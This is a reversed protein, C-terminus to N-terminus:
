LPGSVAIRLAGAPLVRYSLHSARIWLVPREAYQGILARPIFLLLCLFLCIPVARKEILTHLTHTSPPPRPHTPNVAVSVYAPHAEPTM